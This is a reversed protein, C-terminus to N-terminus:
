MTKSYIIYCILYVILMLATPYSLWKATDHMGLIELVIVSIGLLLVSVTFATSKAKNYIFINREDNEAIQQKKITEANKTILFYNRISVIGVVTISLGLPSLMRNDTEVAFSLIIMSLGIVTMIVAKYLRIKLKKKFDM